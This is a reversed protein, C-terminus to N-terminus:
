LIQGAVIRQYSRGSERRDHDDARQHEWQRGTCILPFDVIEINILM